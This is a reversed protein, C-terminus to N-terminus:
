VTKAIIINIDALHELVKWLPQETDIDHVWAVGLIYNTEEITPAYVVNIYQEAQLYRGEQAKALFEKSSLFWQVQPSDVWLELNHPTKAMSKWYRVERVVGNLSILFATDPCPANTRNYEINQKVNM